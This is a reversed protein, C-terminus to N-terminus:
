PAVAYCDRPVRCNEDTRVSLTRVMSGPTGLAEEPVPKHNLTHDPPTDRRSMNWIRIRRIRRPRGAIHEVIVPFGTQQSAATM